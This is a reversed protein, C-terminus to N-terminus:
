SKQALMVLEVVAQAFIEPVEQPVNHGAGAVVRHDRPGAFQLAQASAPNAPNVGDDAGDFTISPVCIPPQAALRQEIDAFAPDGAVLGYRHRYSHIVVDVFDPNDFAPATRAFQEETFAWTPSWQQWLLHTLAKRNTELGARGRENHFYYQYWLLHERAPAAPELARAINQINYSNCSVLGQCREPWLAAVVCAARGGWDYGALVAKQIHLADMLALLDAGLAAQEGSRPTNAEIFRTSGFGRLYPVIVRCGADVLLPTVDAYAQIDYPFGHLLFVVPGDKPGLDAYGVNLVGANIHQTAQV